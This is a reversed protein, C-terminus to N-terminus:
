CICCTNAWMLVEIGRIHLNIAYCPGEFEDGVLFYCLKHCGNSRGKCCSSDSCM